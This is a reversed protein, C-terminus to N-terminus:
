LRVGRTFPMAHPAIGVGLYRVQAPAGAAFWPVTSRVVAAQDANLGYREIVVGAAAEVAHGASCAARGGAAFDEAARCGASLLSTGAYMKLKPSHSYIVLLRKVHLEHLVPLYAHLAARVLAPLNPLRLRCAGPGAHNHKVGQVIHLSHPPPQCAHEGDGAAAASPPRLLAPLLPLSRLAPSRLVALMALESSAEPGHLACAAQGHRLGPPRGSLFEM